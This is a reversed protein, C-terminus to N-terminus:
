VHRQYLEQVIEVLLQKDEFSLEKNVFLDPRKLITKLLSDKKRFQEIKKHDGSLLIEPVKMGRFEAPKTYHSHDLLGNYFSDNEVSERSGVVEPVFRLLVEIIVMAPLEGGTLVYDGISIEQDAIAKVREDIGEYRGCFFVLKEKQSLERAIENNFTKGEPSPIIVYPKCGNRQEYEDYFRFFPEALMVMGNRGGYGPKDTVKHKDTTFDRLNLINFKVIGKEIAKKIIGYDTIIKFMEPFISLITIEMKNNQSM